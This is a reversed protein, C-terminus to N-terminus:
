LSNEQGKSKDILKGLSIILIHANGNLLANGLIGQVSAESATLSRLTSWAEFARFLNFDAGQAEEMNQKKSVLRILLEHKETESLQLTVM